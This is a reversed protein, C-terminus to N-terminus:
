KKPDEILFELLLQEPINLGTLKHKILGTKLDMIFDPHKKIFDISSKLLLKTFSETEDNFSFNPPTM